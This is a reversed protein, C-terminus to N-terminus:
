KHKTHKKDQVPLRQLTGRELALGVSRDRQHRVKGGDDLRAFLRKIARLNDILNIIYIYMHTQIHAIYMLGVTRDRQYGVKGPAIYLVFTYM